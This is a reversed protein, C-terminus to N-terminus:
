LNRIGQWCKGCYPIINSDVSSLWQFQNLALSANLNFLTHTIPHVDSLVEYAKIYYTIRHTLGKLLHQTPVTYHDNFLDM